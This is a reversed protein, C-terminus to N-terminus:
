CYPRLHYEGTDLVLAPAEKDVAELVQLFGPPQQGSDDGRNDGLVAFSFPQNPGISPLQAPGEQAAHAAAAIPFLFIFWFGKM